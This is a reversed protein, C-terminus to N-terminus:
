AFPKARDNCATPESVLGAWLGVPEDPGIRAMATKLDRAPVAQVAVITTRWGM